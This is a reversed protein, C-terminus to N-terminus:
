NGVAENKDREMLELLRPDVKAALKWAAKIQMAARRAERRGVFVEDVFQEAVPAKVLVAGFYGVRAGIAIGDVRGLRHTNTDVYGALTSVTVSAIDSFREITHNASVAKVGVKVADVSGARSILSANVRGSKVGAREGEVTGVRDIVAEIEGRSRLKYAVGALEGLHEVSSTLGGSRLWVKAPTISEDHQEPLWISLPEGPRKARQHQTFGGGVEPPPVVAALLDWDVTNFDPQAYALLAFDAANLAPVTKVSLPLVLPSVDAPTFLTLEFAVANLAPPTYVSM